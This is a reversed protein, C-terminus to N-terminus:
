GVTGGLLTLRVGVDAVLLKMMAESQCIVAGLSWPECIRHRLAIDMLPPHAGAAARTPIPCAVKRVTPGIKSLTIMQM